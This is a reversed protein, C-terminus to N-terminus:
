PPPPSPEIPSGLAAIPDDSAAIQDYIEALQTLIEVKRRTVVALKRFQERMLMPLNDKVLAELQAHDAELAARREHEQYLNRAGQRM